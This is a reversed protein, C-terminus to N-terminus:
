WRGQAGALAEAADDVQDRVHAAWAPDHVQTRRAAIKLQFLSALIESRHWRAADCQGYGARLASIARLNVGPDPCWWRIDAIMKGLDLAPEAWCVRDLDLLRVVDDDTVLVNDTKADGHSVTPEEDPWRDLSSVIESVLTDYAAGVYPLLADIHSGARLTATAEDAVSRRGLRDLPAGESAPHAAMDHLARLSKGVRHIASLPVRHPLRRSLPTGEAEQWVALRDAAVWDVPEAVLVDPRRAGIERAVPVSVEGSGDRDIKVVVGSGPREFGVRLVHRQGPRYRLIRVTPRNRAAGPPGASPLMELLSGSTVLRRLQPMSPDDPSRLREISGDLNWTVALHSPDAGRGETCEYYGTLKRGAKFKTRILTLPPADPGGERVGHRWPRLAIDRVADVGLDGTLASRIQEVPAVASDEAVAM